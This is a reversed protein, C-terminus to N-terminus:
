AMNDNSGPAEQGPSLVVASDDAPQGMTLLQQPSSSVSLLPEAESTTASRPRGDDDKTNKSTANRLPNSRAKSPTSLSVSSEHIGETRSLPSVGLQFETQSGDTKLFHRDHNHLNPISVRLPVIANM